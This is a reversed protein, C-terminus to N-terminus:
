DALWAVKVGCTELVILLADLKVAGSTASEDASARWMGRVLSVRANAIGFRLLVGHLRELKALWLGKVVASQTPNQTWAGSRRALM